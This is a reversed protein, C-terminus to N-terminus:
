RKGKRLAPNIIDNLGEGLFSLGITLIVIVLGPFVSTWWIGVGIQSAAASLDLGWDPTPAEVGLGLYSLGAATLVADAASLSFIVPIAVLVNAAIYRWIIRGPKAGLARAAEVYLEERASLVHSRTARFYLPIYIVTVALGVNVVGKGILVAILGALLLGPFAYLSDMVLVLLRDIRGGTYGSFLGLPFGVLLASFVAIAMIELSTSTGYLVRAFVDRGQHDTGMLHWYSLWVVELAAFNLGVQGAARTDALHTFRLQFSGPAVRAANWGRESSLDVRVFQDVVRISMRPSWSQGGDASYEVGLYHGPTTIRGDLLVLYAVGTVSDRRIRVLFYSVIVSDNVTSSTASRGDIAQGDTMNVWGSPSFSFYTSNAVIPANSWPAVDPGDVFALPDWAAFLPALFAILVFAVVIGIGIWTLVAPLSRKEELLPFLVRGIISHRPIWKRLSGALTWRGTEAM